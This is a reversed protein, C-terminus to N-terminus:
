RLQEVYIASYIDRHLLFLIRPLLKRFLNQFVAFLSKIEKLSHTERASWFVDNWSLAFFEIGSCAVEFIM